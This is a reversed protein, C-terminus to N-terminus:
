YYDALTLPVSRGDALKLEIREGAARQNWNGAPGQFFGSTVAVGDVAILRDGKKLGAAAAPSQPSVFMLDLGDGNLETRVGVRDRIFAPPDGLPELYLRNHGLDMTLKFPKFLGIGANPEAVAGKEQQESLYAPVASFTEGAIAVKGLTVLRTGHTGGVGGAQSEAYPLRALEPKSKWYNRPLSLASGNGLDLHANVTPLGEISVPITNLRDGGRGLKVMRAGPPPVFGDSQALTMQGAKWDLTVVANDFLERGVIVPVPRGIGKAVNSLDLVLVTAHDLRLTGVALSVGKVLEADALGGVGQAKIKQGSPLGISQAFARDVTTVGAGTDLLFDVRHGNISGATVVRNGRYLEFPVASSGQSWSVAPAPIQQCSASAIPVTAVATALLLKHFFNM